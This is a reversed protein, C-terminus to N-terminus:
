GHDLADAVGGHEATGGAGALVPDAGAPAARRTAAWPPAWGRAPLRTAPATIELRDTLGDGDTDARLPDTGLAFGRRRRFPRRWRHRGQRPRHAPLPNPTTPSATPTPTTSATASTRPSPDPASSAPPAPSHGPDTGAALEAADPTGDGDTDAALPDTHSVTAEYGDTLGDGDTDAKAPDTGALKEFADTLGDHDRDGDVPGAGPLGTAVATGAGEASTGLSRGPDIAFTEAPASSRPAPESLGPLM